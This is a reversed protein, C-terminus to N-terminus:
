SMPIRTQLFEYSLFLTTVLLLSGAISPWNTLTNLQSLNCQKLLSLNLQNKLASRFHINYTYLYMLVQSLSWRGVVGVM